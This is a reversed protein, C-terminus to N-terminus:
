GEINLYSTINTSINRIQNVHDVPLYIDVRNVDTPNREVTLDRIMLTPNEVVDLKELFKIAHIIEERVLKLQRNNLVSRSFSSDLRQKIYRAIYMLQAMTQIDLYTNDEAGTGTRQYTTLIREMYVQGDRSVGFSGIGDYYLSNKDSKTFGPKFSIGQLIVFQEPRSLNPAANLQTVQYAALAAPVYFEPTQTNSYGMISLHQNNLANGLTLLNSLTDRKFTTVHGYSGNLPSWTGSTDNLYTNYNIINQADNYPSGIWDYGSEVPILPLKTSLDVAGTGGAMATIAVVLVNASDLAVTLGNSLTGFHKATVTVINTSVSSVVHLNLNANIAANIKAAIVANTDGILVEVNVRAGHINFALTESATATATTVTISCTAKAGSPDALVLVYPTASPANRKFVKVMGALMSGVGFLADETGGPVPIISDAAASGATLKQGILLARSDQQFTGGGSNFEFYTLPVRFNNPIRNFTVPM